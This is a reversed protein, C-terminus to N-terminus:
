LLFCWSSVARVKKRVKPDQEHPCHAFAVRTLLRPGQWGWKSGKYTNVFELMCKMLLPHKAPLKFAASNYKNKGGAVQTQLVVGLEVRAHHM